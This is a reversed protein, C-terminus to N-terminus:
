GIAAKRRRKCALHIVLLQLLDFRLIAVGIDDHREQSNNPRRSSSPSINLCKRRKKSQETTLLTAGREHVIHVLQAFICQKWM